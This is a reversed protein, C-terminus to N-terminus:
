PMLELMGFSEPVHFDPKATKPNVWPMWGPHITGDPNHFYEARYVGAIIESVGEKLVGLERLTKLPLGGSVTYHRGDIKADLKLEDCKWSWDMKRHFEAKYALVDGRPSMEFCYYPKLTLDPALFIEVRDSDIVRDKATAGDPLILDDDVCDFRFHLREDDWLARFETFPAARSEWAFSFDNLLAAESWNLGAKPVRRVQYRKMGCIHCWDLGSCRCSERQRQHPWEALM